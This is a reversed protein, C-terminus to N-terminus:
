EKLGMQCIPCREKSPETETEFLLQEHKKILSYIKKGDYDKVANGLGVVAKAIRVISLHKSNRLHRLHKKRSIFTKKDLMRQMGCLACPPQSVLKLQEELSAVAIFAEDKTVPDMIKTFLAMWKAILAYSELHDLHDDKDLHEEHQLVYSTKICNSLIYHIDISAEYV